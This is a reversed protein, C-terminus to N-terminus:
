PKRAEVRMDRNPRPGHTQPPLIAVDMFGADACLQRITKPTYGFKHLMFPDRHSGDGYLAYQWMQLPQGALLNRAAAEINPLELILKGGPKLMRKWEAMVHPAEYERFHEIVHAAMLEDACEDALPTPEVISGDANFTLAHLVEPPKPARPNIVPDVNLWGSLVRRGCGYNIRIM